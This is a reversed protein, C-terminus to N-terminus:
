THTSDENSFLLFREQRKTHKELPFFFLFSILCHIVVNIACSIVQIYADFLTLIKLYLFINATIKFHKELLTRLSEQSMTVKNVPDTLCM